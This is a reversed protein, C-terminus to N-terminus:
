VLLCPHLRTLIVTHSNTGQRTNVYKVLNPQQAFLPTGLLLATCTLLGKNM